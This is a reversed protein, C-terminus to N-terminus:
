FARLVHEVEYSIVHVATQRPRCACSCWAVGRVQFTFYKRVVGFEVQSESLMGQGLCLLRLVSPILLLFVRLVLQPLLATLISRAIPFKFLTQVIAYSQLKDVQSCALM